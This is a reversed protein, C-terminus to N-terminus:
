ADSWPPQQAVPCLSVLVLAWFTSLMRKLCMHLVNCSWPFAFAGTWMWLVRLWTGSHKRCIDVTRIKMCLYSRSCFSSCGVASADLLQQWLQGERFRMEDTKHFYTSDFLIQAVALSMTCFYQFQHAQRVQNIDSSVIRSLVNWCLHQETKFIHFLWMGTLSRFFRRRVPTKSLTGAFQGLM